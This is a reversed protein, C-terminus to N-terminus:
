RSSLRLADLVVAMLASHSQFERELWAFAQDKDGLGAYVQAVDYGSVKTTGFGKKLEDLIAMAETRKGTQSYVYGLLWKHSDRKSLQLGKEAEALAEAQKGQKLYVLTLIERAAYWNPDLNIARQSQDFADGCEIATPRFM